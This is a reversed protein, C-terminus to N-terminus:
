HRPEGYTAMLEQIDGSCCRGSPNKTQCETGTCATTVHRVDDLTQTGDQIAEVIAAKTVGKCYCIIQADPMSTIRQRGTKRAEITASIVYEECGSDPFWTRILAKSEQKLEIVVDEFGADKLMRELDSVLAAGAICGCYADLRSRLRDPLPKVAVVDSIALRGGERLVRYADRFVQRKDPSLNIVCNSIIVDVTNDAVPLHEIEGLRFEVNEYDTKEANARAKGVMEATMDVGIVRGSQGVRPTALFCDFGGGSGLDLVTEGPKLDAIAQPNGCGLGMNAGVPAGDTEEQSYGLATAADQTGSPATNCCSAACCGNHRSQAVDAYWQRVQRRISDNEFNSM